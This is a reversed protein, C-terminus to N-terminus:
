AARSTGFAALDMSHSGAPVPPSGRPHSRANLYTTLQAVIRRLTEPRVAGIPDQVASLPVTTLYASRILLPFPLGMGPFDPHQQDVVVDVGPMERHLKSSIACVLLDRDAGMRKLVVAPRLKLEGDAQQFAVRVVRGEEM